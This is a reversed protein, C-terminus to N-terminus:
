IIRSICKYFSTKNAIKQNYKRLTYSNKNHKYRYTLRKPRELKGYLICLSLCHMDTKEIIDKLLVM